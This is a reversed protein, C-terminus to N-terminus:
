FSLRGTLLFAHDYTPTLAPKLVIPMPTVAVQYGFGFIAKLNKGIAFRGFIIGPTVFLQTLNAREGDFWYTDNLEVEPWFYEGFHYQFAINTVLSTGITSENATPIAVGSTAQIDFDGWGKGGAITPTIVWAKNTFPSGLLPAQFGLFTTVIYNGKDEPESVIRQKITLFNWDSFGYAPSKVYREEYNPINILVENMTTPIFELGKGGGFNTVEAGSGLQQFSQDYRIEQELRPTVTALPTMWHPQTAQAEHVRDYWHLFYDEIPNNTPGAFAPLPNETFIDTAFAAPTAFATAVVSFGLAALPRAPLSARFSNLSM